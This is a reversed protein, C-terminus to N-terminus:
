PTVLQDPYYAICLEFGSTLPAETEQRARAALFSMALGFRQLPERPKQTSM